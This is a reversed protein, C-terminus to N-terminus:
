FRAKHMREGKDSGLEELETRRGELGHETAEVGSFDRNLSRRMRPPEFNNSTGKVMGVPASTPM